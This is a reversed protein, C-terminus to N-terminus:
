ELLPPLLLVLLLLPPLPLPKRLSADNDPAAPEGNNSNPWPPGPPPVPPPGDPVPPPNVVIAYRAAIVTSSCLSVSDSIVRHVDLSLGSSEMFTCTRVPTLRYGYSIIACVNYVPRTLSRFLGSPLPTQENVLLPIKTSYCHIDPDDPSSGYPTHHCRVPLVLQLAVASDHSVNLLRPKIFIHEANSLIACIM